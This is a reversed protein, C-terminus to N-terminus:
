FHPLLSSRYTSKTVALAQREPVSGLPADGTTEAQLADVTPPLIPQPASSSSHSLTIQPASDISPSLQEPNTPGANVILACDSLPVSSLLISIRVPKTLPNSSLIPISPTSRSISLNLIRTILRSLRYAPQLISLHSYAFIILHSCVYLRNLIRFYLKDCVLLLSFQLVYLSTNVTFLSISTKISFSNWLLFLPTLDQNPTYKRGLFKM